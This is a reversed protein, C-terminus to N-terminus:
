KDGLTNNRIPRGTTPQTRRNGRLSCCPCHQIPARPIPELPSGISRLALSYGLKRTWVVLARPRPPVQVLEWRQISDRSVGVLRGLGPQSLRLAVRRNRLPTALRRREFKEWPEDRYWDRPGPRPKGDQDVVVLQRGLEGAWQILGDLPPQAIGKERECLTKARISLNDAVSGQSRDAQIRAARLDGIIQHYVAQAVDDVNLPM